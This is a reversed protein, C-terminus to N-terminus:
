VSLYLGKMITELKKITKWVRIKNTKEFPLQNLIKVINRISIGESYYEWIVKEQEDAFAHENLFHQAMCYYDQVAQRLQPDAWTRGERADPTAAGGKSISSNEGNNDYEIDKFDTEDALRKYWYARLREYESKKSM